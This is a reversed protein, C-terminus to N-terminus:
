GSFTAMLFGAAAVFFTPGLLMLVIRTLPAEFYSASLALCLHVPSVLLGCMLGSFALTELGVKAQPGTGIFPMLFPFTIAVTPMTVGTLFGVLLPLSFILIQRPVNMQSLFQVVSPIAHGAELDVKFLMAGLVLLAFDLEMGSKFIAICRNLPLKHFAMFILIAPLIGVAPPLNLGAYLIAVLAIPWFAHALNRLNKTLRDKPRDEQNRPPLGSLLLFIVGSLTGFLTIAINHSILTFASIGLMSQILPVSPFLPWVTEWQHRFLFNIAAQRTRDVGIHDGLDRVMPASLMIGGPTPLMGMMMPIASLAVRRSRFLGELAPGLRESVGTEKMTDGLVNVLTLLATLAVFLYGTTQSLPKSHWEDVIAGWFAGPTVRLLVALAISSLFIARGLRVKLHLLVVLLTLALAM